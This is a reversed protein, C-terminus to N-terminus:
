LHHQRVADLAIETRNSRGTKKLISSVHHKVTERSIRLEEAISLNSRGHAILDVVQYERPTLTAFRRYVNRRRTTAMMELWYRALSPPPLHRYKPLIPRLLARPMVWM